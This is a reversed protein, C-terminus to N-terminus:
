RAFKLSLQACRNCVNVMLSWSSKKKDTELFYEGGNSVSERAFNFYSLWLKNLCNECSALNVISQTADTLITLRPLTVWAMKLM